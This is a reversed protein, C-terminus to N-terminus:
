FNSIFDLLVTSLYTATIMYLIVAVLTLLLSYVYKLVVSLRSRFIQINLLMAPIGFIAGVFTGLVILAILPVSIWVWQYWKIPPAINLKENDVWVQPLPDLISPRMEIKAILGGVSTLAVSKSGKEKQIVEGDYLLKSRAFSATKLVIQHDEFGPIRIAYKGKGLPIAELTRIPGTSSSQGINIQDDNERSVRASSGDPLIIGEQVIPKPAPTPVDVLENETLLSDNDATDSFNGGADADDDFIMSNTSEVEDTWLDDAALLAAPTQEAPPSPIEPAPSLPPPPPEPASPTPPEPIDPKIQMLGRQAAPNNPNIALVKELCLSRTKNDDFTGALWLWATEDAPNEQLAQKFFNQAEEKDKSKFAEIGKQTLGDM